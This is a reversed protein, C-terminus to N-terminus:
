NRRFGTAPMRLVNVHQKYIILLSLLMDLARGPNATETQLRSAITKSQATITLSSLSDKEIPGIGVM